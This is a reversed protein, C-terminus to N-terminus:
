PLRRPLLPQAAWGRDPLPIAPRRNASLSMGVGVGVGGRQSRELMQRARQRQGTATADICIQQQQQQPQTHRFDSLYSRSALTTQEVFRRHGEQQREHRLETQTEVHVLLQMSLAAIARQRAETLTDACIASVALPVQQEPEANAIWSLALLLWGYRWYRQPKV